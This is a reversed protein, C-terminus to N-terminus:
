GPFKRIMKQIGAAIDRMALPEKAVYVLMLSVGAHGSDGIKEYWAQKQLRYAERIQRKIRNRAVATKFVRKPVSVAVRAASAGEPEPLWVVRLPYAVYSNGEAFLRGITKRSKLREDRGFTFAPTM